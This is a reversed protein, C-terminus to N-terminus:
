AVHRLLGQMFDTQGVAFVAMLLSLRLAGGAATVWHLRRTTVVDYAALAVILLVAAGVAFRPDVRGALMPWLGVRAVAPGILSVSALYMARRHVELRKRAAVGLGLFLVFSLLSAYNGWFVASMLPLPLPSPQGAAFIRAISGSQVVWTTVITALGLGVGFWGLRRHLAVSRRSVLVSQVAFWVFWGTLAVGHVVALASIPPPEFLPRLFFTRAFGAFVVFLLAGAIGSFFYRRLLERASSAPRVARRDPLNAPRTKAHAM